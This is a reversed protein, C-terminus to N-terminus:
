KGSEAPRPFPGGPVSREHNMCPGSLEGILCAHRLGPASGLGDQGNEFVSPDFFHELRGFNAVFAGARQPVGAVRQLDNFALTVFSGRSDHHMRSIFGGAWRYHALEDMSPDRHM